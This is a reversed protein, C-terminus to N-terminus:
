DEKKHEPCYASDRDKHPNYTWGRTIERWENVGLEYNDVM